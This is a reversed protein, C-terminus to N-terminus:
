DDLVRNLENLVSRLERFAPALRALTAKLEAQERLEREIDKLVWAIVDQPLPEVTMRHLWGEIEGTSIAGAMPGISRVPTRDPGLRIPGYQAGMAHLM